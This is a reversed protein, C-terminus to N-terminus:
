IQTLPCNGNKYASYQSPLHTCPLDVYPETHTLMQRPSIGPTASLLCGCLCLKSVCHEAKSTNWHNRSVFPLQWDGVTELCTLFHCIGWGSTVLPYPCNTKATTTIPIILWWDSIAKHSWRLYLVCRVNESWEEVYLASIKKIKQM